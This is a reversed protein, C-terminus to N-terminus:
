QQYSLKKNKLSIYVLMLGTLLLPLSLLQGMTFADFFYGIHQDPQRFFEVFVRFLAYLCLWIGSLFGQYNKIQTFFYLMNVVAFLLLGELLAEYIQTPHRAIGSGDAFIVAWAVNTPNGYLEANIFNAIRGFFIGFSATCAVLDTFKLFSFNFKQVFILSAVVAGVFGGHFSMGGHWIKLIEFPHYFYYQLNYFVIYGIRGGLIVGLVSYFLLADKKVADLQLQKSIFFYSYILGILYAIAYWKVGFSGVIFANPSLAPLQITV